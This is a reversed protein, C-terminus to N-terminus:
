DFVGTSVRVPRLRQAAASVVYSALGVLMPVALVLLAVTTTPFVAPFGGENASAFVVVPLFGIPVALVGGIGALLVARAGASRALVRPPAGAVTLVDREDKSEAAALALSAGVVFLAFLLAVGSLILELQFPSLANSPDHFRVSLYAETGIPSPVAQNDVFDQGVNELRNREEETLDTTNRYLYAGPVIELGLRAATAPSMLVDPYTIDLRHEPDTFVVPTTTGDPAHLVSTSADELPIVVAGDRLAKRARDDLGMTDAVPPDAIVVAEPIYSGVLEGHVEVDEVTWALERGDRVLGYPIMAIRVASREAAPLVQDIAGTIAADPLSRETTSIGQGDDVLRITSLSVVVADDALEVRRGDRIDAGRVLGASVVALAGAAAVASVVAGTRTRSRALSRAGLRWPGRLRTAFPELRVVIAPAIACAGLLEAVGGIIAVLAWVDGSRGGANGIVALAELALGIAVSLLGLVVLRRPVAPQPRRGALAALTPLGAASRAPILAAVSAAAVGVVVAAGIDLPRIPLHDIRHDVVREVSGRWILLGALALGVGAISGLIGTVTGQLLLTTRLLSPPAGNASLQGLTVLQRRAGVAFAASIVIGMVTLVVAGLVLSWRVGVDGDDDDRLPEIFDSRFQVRDGARLAQEQERTLTPLDVLQVRSTRELFEDPLEGPAVVYVDCSLCLEDEVLGVVSIRGLPAALDLEGGIHTDLKRALSRSLAVEGAARPSDGAVLTRMGSTLADRLSLDTVEVGASRHLEDSTRVVTYTSNVIVARTGAPLVPPRPEAPLGPVYTPLGVVADAQGNYKQWERDLGHNDSRILVAASTMGAVPLAVLLAVLLTRGPRHLVERRALRLAVVFSTM